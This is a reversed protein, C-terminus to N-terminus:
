FLLLLNLCILMKFGYARLEQVEQYPGSDPEAAELGPGPRTGPAERHRLMLAVHETLVEEVLQKILGSDVSVGSDVFLQLGGCGAAEVSSVCLSFVLESGRGRWTILHSLTEGIDSPDASARQTPDSPPPHYMESIMRSM